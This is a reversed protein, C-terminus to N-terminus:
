GEENGTVTAAKKEVVATIVSKVRDFLYSSFAGCFLGWAAYAADVKWVPMAHTKMYAIMMEPHPLAWALLAGAVLPVTPLFLTNIFVSETRLENSLRERLSLKGDGDDKQATLVNITRKVFETVLSAVIAVLGAQWCLFIELQEM